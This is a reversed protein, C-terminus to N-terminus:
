IFCDVKVVRLALGKDKVFFDPLLAVEENPFCVLLGTM